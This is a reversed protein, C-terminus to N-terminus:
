VVIHRVSSRFGHDGREGREGSCFIISVGSFLHKFLEDVMVQSQLHHLLHNVQGAPCKLVIDVLARSSNAHVDLHDKFEPGLKAVLKPILNASFLWQLDAVQGLSDDWGIMILIEMMSYMGIHNLLKDLLEAHSKM